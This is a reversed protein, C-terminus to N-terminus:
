AKRTEWGGGGRGVKKWQELHLFRLFSPFGKKKQFCVVVVVAVVLAVMVTLQRTKNRRSITHTHTHTHTSLRLRETFPFPLFLFNLCSLCSVRANCKMECWKVPQSVSQSVKGTHRAFRCLCVCVSSIFTTHSYKKKHVAFLFFLYAKGFEASAASTFLRFNLWSFLKNQCQSVKNHFPFLQLLFNTTTTVLCPM